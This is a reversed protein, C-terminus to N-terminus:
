RLGSPKILFSEALDFTDRPFEFVWSNGELLTDAYVHGSPAPLGFRVSKRSGDKLEVTLSVSDEDLGYQAVDGQEWDTWVVARLQGLRHVAEEVAFANVIGQSGPSLSWQNQGKRNLRWIADGRQVEVAVVQDETYNWVTLERFHGAAAPLRELASVDLAYVANEDVRRVFMSEGERAGFELALVRTPQGAVEPDSKIAVRFRPPALGYGALDPEAVVDKVFQTVRLAELDQIFRGVTGADAPVGLPEIRLVGNTAKVLTFSEGNGIEISTVDQPVRILQRDRFDNPTAQWAQLLDSAVTVVASLDRGAAYIENTTGEVPKGFQLTQARNTGKAFVIELDPPQLGWGQRDATPDDSVFRKVSLDRLGQILEEVRRGDARAQMPRVIQWSRDAAKQVL